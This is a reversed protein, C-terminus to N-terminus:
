VRHHERWLEAALNLLKPHMTERAKEIFHQGPQGVIRKAFVTRGGIRFRLALATKPYIFHPTKSFFGTGQDVFLTYSAKSIVSFSNETRRAFVGKRMAGSLLPMHFTLEYVAIISGDLIFDRVAEDATECNEFAKKIETADVNIIPSM